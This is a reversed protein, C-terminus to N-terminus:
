RAEKCELTVSVGHRDNRVRLVNYTMGGRLVKDGEKAAQRADTAAYTVAIDAQDMIGEDEMVKASHTVDSVGCAAIIERSGGRHLLTISEPADGVAERLDALM